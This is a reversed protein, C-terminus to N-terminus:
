IKTNLAILIKRMTSIRIPNQFIDYNRKELIRLNYEYINGALRIAYRYNFGLMPIGIRGENLLVRSKDILFIVLNKINENMVKDYLMQESVSFRQLYEGPVYIRDRKILDENIDRVFNILQMAESYRKAYYLAKDSSYSVIHTMALGVVAASGYMYQELEDYNLYRTKTIDQEMADFFSDVYSFPINNRVFLQHTARLIKNQNTIDTKLNVIDQWEKKIQNITDGIQTKTQGDEPNDVFEDVYRLFAYFVITDNKVKKRFIKTAFSYNTSYKHLFSKALKLDAKYLDTSYTNYKQM